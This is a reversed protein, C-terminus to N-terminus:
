LSSTRHSLDRRIQPLYNGEISEKCTGLVPDGYDQRIVAIEDQWGQGDGLNAQQKTGIHIDLCETSFGIARLFVFVTFFASLISHRCVQRAYNKIGDDSLVTSSSLGSIIM